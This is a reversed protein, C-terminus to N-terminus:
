AVSRELRVCSQLAPVPPLPSLSSHFGIRRGSDILTVHRCTEGTLRTIRKVTRSGRSLLKRPRQAIRAKRRRSVGLRGANTLTQTRLFSRRNFM